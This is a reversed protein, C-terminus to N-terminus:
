DDDPGWSGSDEPGPCFCSGSHVGHQVPKRFGEVEVGFVHRAAVGYRREYKKLMRSAQLISLRLVRNCSKRFWPMRHYCWVLYGADQTLVTGFKRRPYRSGFGVRSEPTLVRVTMMTM